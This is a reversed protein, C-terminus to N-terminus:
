TVPQGNSVRSAEAPPTKVVLGGMILPKRPPPLLWPAPDLQYAWAQVLPGLYRRIRPGFDHHRPLSWRHDRADGARRVTKESVGAIRAVDAVTLLPAAMAAIGEDPVARLGWIRDWLQRLDYRQGPLPRLGLDDIIAVAAPRSVRFYDQLDSRSAMLRQDLAPPFVAARPVTIRAPNSQTTM